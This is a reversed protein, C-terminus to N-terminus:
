LVLSLRRGPALPTPGIHLTRAPGAVREITVPEGFARLVEVETRGSAPDHELWAWVGPFFVPCSLRGMEGGRQPALHLTRGPV